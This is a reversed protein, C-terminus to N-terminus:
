QRQGNLAVLCPGDRAILGLKIYTKITPLTYGESNSGSFDSSPLTGDFLFASHARELANAPSNAGPGPAFALPGTTGACGALVLLAALLLARRSLSEVMM